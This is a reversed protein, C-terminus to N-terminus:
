AAFATAVIRRYWREADGSAVSSVQSGIRLIRGGEIRFEARHAIAAAPELVSYCVSGFNGATAERGALLAVIARACQLAQSCAASAAKPMADAICADGIVHVNRMLTSEFTLPDVPCWGHASALGADPALQGPAQPPIVNAVAVRHAGGATYLTMAAPDVRLVAGGETSAIWEIMGPYLRRWAATFLDQEPFANNADLILVKSRPKRRQLYRAILSAREYPAPPCRMLGSPVSIAVVGGDPMARLQRALRLTQAGAQWAHPMKLAATQTYGPLKEPLFRIGPAVVLRDFAVSRGGDLRVERNALDIGAAREGLVKVGARRVGERTVRISAMTRMGGIVENSMPCTAFRLVPDILNVDIAPNLRRLYLACASGGFGGGIIAVRAKAGARVRAGKGMAALGYLAALAGSKLFVRRRMRVAPESGNWNGISWRWMTRIRLM